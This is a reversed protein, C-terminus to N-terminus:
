PRAWLRNMRIRVDGNPALVFRDAVVTRQKVNVSTLFVLSKLGGRGMRWCWRRRRPSCPDALSWASCMGLVAQWRVSVVRRQLRWGRDAVQSVIAMAAVVGVAVVLQVNIRVRSTLLHGVSYMSQVVVTPLPAVTLCGQLIRWPVAPLSPLAAHTGIRSEKVVVIVAAIRLSSPGCGNALCSTM